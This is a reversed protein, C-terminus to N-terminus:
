LQNRLLVTSFLCIYGKTLMAVPWKRTLDVFIVKLRLSRREEKKEKIKKRVLGGPLPEKGELRATKCCLIYVSCLVFLWM